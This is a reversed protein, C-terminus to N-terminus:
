NTRVRGEGERHERDLHGRRFRAACLRGGRAHVLAISAGDSHGILIAQGIGFADLVQPLAVRAEDQMYTLPRPLSVPDSQGYGLRSYAIARLGTAESVRAPFDRWQEASGLGEHLFVLTTTARAPPDGWARVEVRGGDITVFGNPM